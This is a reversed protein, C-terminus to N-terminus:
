LSSNRRKKNRDVAKGRSGSFVARRVSLQQQRSSSAHTHTQLHSSAARKAQFAFTAHQYPNLQGYAPNERSPEDARSARMQQVRLYEADRKERLSYKTRWVQRLKFASLIRRAESHCSPRCAAPRRPHKFALDHHGCASEPIAQTSYLSSGSNTASM